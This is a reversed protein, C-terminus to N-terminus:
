SDLKEDENRVNNTSKTHDPSSCYKVELDRLCEFVKIIGGTDPYYIYGCNDPQGTYMHRIGDFMATGQMHVDVKCGNETSWGDEGVGSCTWYVVCFVFGVKGIQDSTRGQPDYYVRYFKSKDDIQVFPWKHVLSGDDFKLEDLCVGDNM